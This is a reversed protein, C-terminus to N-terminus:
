AGAPLEGLGGHLYKAHRDRDLFLSDDDDSIGERLFHAYLAAVRAEIDAQEQATITSHLADDEM